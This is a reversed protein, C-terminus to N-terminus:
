CCPGRPADGHQTTHPLPRALQSQLAPKLATPRDLGAAELTPRKWSRTELFFLFFRFLVKEDKTRLLM